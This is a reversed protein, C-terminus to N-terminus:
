HKLSDNQPLSLNLKKCEDTAKGPYLDCNVLSYDKLNSKKKKKKDSRSM